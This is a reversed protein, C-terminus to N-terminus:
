RRSRSAPLFSCGFLCSPFMSPKTHTHTRECPVPSSPAAAMMQLSSSVEPLSKVGSYVAGVLLLSACVSLLIRTKGSLISSGEPSANGKKLGAHTAAAPPLAPPSSEPVRPCARCTATPEWALAYASDIQRLLWEGLHGVAGLGPSFPPCGKECSDQQSLLLSEKAEGVTM